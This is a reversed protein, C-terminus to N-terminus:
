VGYANSALAGDDKANGCGECLGDQRTALYSGCSDCSSASTPEVPEGICEDDDPDESGDALYVTQGIADAHRKAAARAERYTTTLGATLENGEATLIMYTSM